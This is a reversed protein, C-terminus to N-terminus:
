DNRRRIVILEDTQLVYEFDTTLLMLDLAELPSLGRTKGHLVVERAQLELGPEEFRLTRGTERAVWTLFQILPQGDLDPSTALAQAWAWDAHSASIRTRRVDGREDVVIEQGAGSEVQVNRALNQLHIRGERVRVRLAGPAARVEFITGIDRVTGFHTNVRLSHSPPSVGSDLYVAGTQLRVTESSEVILESQQDIRVSHGQALKLAVGASAGTRLRAGARIQAGVHLPRWNEDGSVLVAVTGHLVETSAIFASARRPLLHTFTALSIAITTLMAALALLWNRRQRARLKNRLARQAAALV